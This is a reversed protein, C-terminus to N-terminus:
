SGQLNSNGDLEDRNLPICSSGWGDPYLDWRRMDAMRHGELFLEHARENRLVNRAEAETTFDVDTLGSAARVENILDEAADLDQNPGEILIEAQILWAEQWKGVPISSDRELYKEQHWVPTEGDAGFLGPMEVVPVRPDGTNRFRTDVTAENRSRTSNWVGITIGVGLDYEAWWEFDDSIASADNMAGTLDGLKLRTRARALQAMEAIDDASSGAAQAVNIAETLSAEALQYSESPPVAAGGDYTGVCMMDAIFYQSLGLYLEALATRRDSGADPIVERIRRSVEAAMFRTESVSPWFQDPINGAGANLDIFGEKSAMHWSPWTGSAVLEDSLLGGMEVVDDMLDNFAREMGVTLPDIMVPDNLAEPQIAGPNEADFLDDCAALTLVAALAVAPAALGRARSGKRGHNMSKKRKVHREGTRNENTADM